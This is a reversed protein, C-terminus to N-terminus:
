RMRSRESAAAVIFLIGGAMAASRVFLRVISRATLERLPWVASWWACLGGRFASVETSTAFARPSV